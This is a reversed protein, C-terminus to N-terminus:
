EARTGGGELPGASPKSQWKRLAITPKPGTGALIRPFSNTIEINAELAAIPGIGAQM